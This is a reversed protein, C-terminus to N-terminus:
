EGPPAPPSASQLHKLVVERAKERVMPKAILRGQQQWKIIESLTTQMVLDVCQAIFREKETLPDLWGDGCEVHMDSGADKIEYFRLVM